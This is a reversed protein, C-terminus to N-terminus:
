RHRTCVRSVEIRQQMRKITQRAAQADRSEREAAATMSVSGPPITATWLLAGEAQRSLAVQRKSSTV